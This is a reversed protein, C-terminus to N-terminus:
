NLFFYLLPFQPRWLAGIGDRSCYGFLRELNELDLIPFLHLFCAPSLGKQTQPLVLRESLFCRKRPQTRARAHTYVHVCFCFNVEAVKPISVEGTVDAERLSQYSRLM